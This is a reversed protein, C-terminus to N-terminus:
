GRFTLLRMVRYVAYERMLLFFVRGQVYHAGAFIQRTTTSASFFARAMNLRCSIAFFSIFGMLFFLFFFVSFVPILTAFAFLDLQPM